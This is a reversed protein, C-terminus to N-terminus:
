EEGVMSISPFIMPPLWFSAEAQEIMSQFSTVAWIRSNELSHDGAVTGAFYRYGALGDQSEGWQSM